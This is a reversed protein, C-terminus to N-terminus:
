NLRIFCLVYYCDPLIIFARALEFGAVVEEIIKPDYISCYAEWVKDDENKQSSVNLLCSYSDYESTDGKLMTINNLQTKCDEWPCSYVQHGRKFAIFNFIGKTTLSSPESHADPWKCVFPVVTKSM